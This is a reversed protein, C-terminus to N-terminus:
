HGGALCGSPSISRGRRELAMYVVDVIEAVGLGGADVPDGVKGDVDVGLVALLPELQHGGLRGPEDHAADLGVELKYSCRWM